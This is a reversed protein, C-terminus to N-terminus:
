TDAIGGGIQSGALAGPVAACPPALAQAEAVLSPSRPLAGPDQSRGHPSHVLVQVDRDTQRESRKFALCPEQLM